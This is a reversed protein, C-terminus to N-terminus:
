LQNISQKTDVLSQETNTKLDNVKTEYTELRSVVADLREDVAKTNNRNTFIDKRNTLIQASTRIQFELNKMLDSEITEIKTELEEYETSTTDLNRRASRSEQYRESEYVKDLADEVKNEVKTLRDLIDSFRRENENLRWEIHSLGDLRETLM